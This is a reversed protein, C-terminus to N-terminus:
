GSQLVSLVNGAPDKFWAISPGRGDSRMIGKGDAEFGPYREFEVGRGGLADVARDIDDVEFNLITFSAPAHDDKAYVFVRAGGALTLVLAGMDDPGEDEVRLGLTEGYFRRAADLDDVSFGSFAPTEGFM